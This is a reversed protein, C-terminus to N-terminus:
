KLRSINKENEDQPIQSYFAGKCCFLIANVTLHTKLGYSFPYVCRFMTERPAIGIYPLSSDDDDAFGERASTASLGFSDPPEM